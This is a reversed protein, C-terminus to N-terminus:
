QPRLEALRTRANEAGGGEPELELYHDLEQAELSLDGTTNSFFALAYHAAALKPRRDHLDRLHERARLFLVQDPYQQVARYYARVGLNLEGQEIRFFAVDYRAEGHGPDVEIARLTTLEAEDPRGANHQAWALQLLPEADDPQLECLETLARLAAQHEGLATYVSGLSRLALLYSPDTSPIEELHQRAEDFRQERVADLGAQLGPHIGSADAQQPPVLDVAREEVGAPGVRVLRAYLFSAAVVVVLLLAFLLSSRIAPKM